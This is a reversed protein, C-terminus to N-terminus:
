PNGTVANEYHRIEHGGRPRWDVAVVDIRLLRDTAKLRVAVSRAVQVLKRRKAADINAEPRFPGPEGTMVRTKVEVVVIARDRPSEFVLDAEGPGVELNRALLRYGRRRLHREALREGARGLAKGRPPERSFLRRLAGIM